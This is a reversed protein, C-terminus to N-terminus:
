WSLRRRFSPVLLIVFKTATSTEDSERTALVLVNDSLKTTSGGGAYVVGGTARVSKEYNQAM